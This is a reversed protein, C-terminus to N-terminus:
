APKKIVAIVEKENEIYMPKYPTLLKKFSTRNFRFSNENETNVIFSGIKKLFTNAFPSNKALTHVTEAIILSKKSALYLKKVIKESNKFQYLSGQLIVHDAVPLIDSKLDFLRASISRKHANWIFAPSIDLGLYNINKKKLYDFLVCDGCCVDIVFSKPKLFKAINTYRQQYNKRYIARMFLRYLTPFNYLAGMSASKEILSIRLRRLAKLYAIIDPILKITSKKEKNRIHLVEEEHISLGYLSSKVMIETDWFWHQDEITKLVPLIKERNFFKYGTETDRVPLNFISKILISYGISLVTRLFYNVPLIKIPYKRSGIVIDHKGEKIIKVFYPIYDPKVELDIDIYGVVAGKSKQIGETVTGGRGINKKHFIYRIQKNNKALDLIHKKTNDSSKDDILIIEYSFKSSNLVDIIRETSNDIHPSENYCPLILSIDLSKRM